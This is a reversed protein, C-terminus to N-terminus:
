NVEYGYEKLFNIAWELKDSVRQGAPQAKTWLELNEIRNDARDGNVHHVNEVGKLPRELYDSMIMRHEAVYGNNKANPHDPNWIHIYGQNVQRGGKWNTSRKGRKAKNRNEQALKTLHPQYRKFGCEEVFENWRGFQYRVSM